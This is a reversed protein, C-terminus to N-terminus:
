PPQGIVDHIIVAPHQQASWRTDDWCRRCLPYSREWCGPFVATPGHRPPLGFSVVVEARTHTRRHALTVCLPRGLPTAVTIEGPGPIRGLAPPRDDM